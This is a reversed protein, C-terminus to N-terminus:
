LQLCRETADLRGKKPTVEGPDASLRTALLDLDAAVSRKLAAFQDLSLQQEADSLALEPRPHVEVMVAHAGVAFAARTLPAILDRRGAAHSVDVMVPLRSQALALPVASLDLTARTQQGFTRIGRECLVIRDNGAMAIYEAANLWETLTASFGRKLLVPKGAAGAARLLEYNYMNRAGIQVVDAYRAVLRLKAESTAETVTVMNHRRGVRQLVQLGEEGLGQFAYPSTRPKFAGGRLFRVGLDALRGATQDLQRESEVACPGAVYVPVGRGIHHGRVDITVPPGAGAGVLLKDGSRTMDGRMLPPM